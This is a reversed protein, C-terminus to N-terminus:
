PPIKINCDLPSYKSAYNVAPQWSPREGSHIATTYLDPNTPNDGSHIVM